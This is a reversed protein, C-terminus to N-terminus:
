PERPFIYRENVWGIVGIVAGVALLLVGAIRLDARTVLSAVLRLAAGAVFVGGAAIWLGNVLVRDRRDKGSPNRQAMLAGGAM